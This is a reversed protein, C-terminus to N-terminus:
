PILLWKLVVRAKDTVRGVVLLKGLPQMGVQLGFPHAAPKRWVIDLAPALDVFLDVLANPHM